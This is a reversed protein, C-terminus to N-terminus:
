LDHGPISCEPDKGLINIKYMGGKPCQPIANGRIYAAVGAIDVAGTTAGTSLAWQEKAADIQRLNNICANARAQERAKMFSPVAIVSAMSAPGLAMGTLVSEGKSKTRGRISIGSPGKVVVFSCEHAGWINELRHLAAEEISGSGNTEFVGRIAQNRLSNIEESFQRSVYVLGNNQGPMGSFAARFDRSSLLGRRSEAAFLSNQLAQKSTAFLLFGNHLAFTPEFPFPTDEEVNITLADVGGIRTNTVIARNEKLIGRVATMLTNDRVAVGVLVSPEPISIPKGDIPLTVRKSPNFQMSVFVEDGFSRLVGDLTVGLEEFSEEVDRHFSIAARPSAFTVVASRILLWIQDVNVTATRALVTDSPLYDLCAMRKPSGGLLGKWLPLASASPETDLFVKVSRTSADIPASSVGIANVSCFGNRELFAPLKLIGRKLEVIDHDDPMLPVLASAQDIFRSLVGRTNLVLLLDGGQDLSSLVRHYQQRTVEPNGVVPDGGADFLFASTFILVLCVATRIRM